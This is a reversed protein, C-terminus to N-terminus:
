LSRIPARISGTLSDRDSVKIEPVVYHFLGKEDLQTHTYIYIYICMCICVYRCIMTKNQFGRKSGLCLGRVSGM